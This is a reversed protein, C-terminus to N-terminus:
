LERGALLVHSPSTGWVSLIFYINKRKKRSALPLDIDLVLGGWLGGGGRYRRLLSLVGKWCAFHPVAIDGLCEPHFLYKEQLGPPSRIDLSPTQLVDIDWSGGRWGTGLSVIRPVTDHPPSPTAGSYVTCVTMEETSSEELGGQVVLFLVPSLTLLLLRPPM